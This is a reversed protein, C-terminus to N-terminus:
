NQKSLLARAYWFRPLPRLTPLHRIGLGRLIQVYGVRPGPRNWQQQVGVREVLHTRNYSAPSPQGSVYILEAPLHGVIARPSILGPISQHM